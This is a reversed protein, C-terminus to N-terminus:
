DMLPFDSSEYTHTSHTRLHPHAHHVCPYIDRVWVEGVVQPHVLSLLIAWSGCGGIAVLVANIIVPITLAGWLQMQEGQQSGRLQLM